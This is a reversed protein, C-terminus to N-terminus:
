EETFEIAIDFSSGALTVGNLNVALVQAVGRLVISQGLEGFTWDVPWQTGATQANSPVPTNILIKNSRMTGVATGLTPNATYARVVATGAPNNSDNSVITPATSTGVTNATSRKVLLIDTYGVTNQTASVRIRNVRVVKTASGTITFIDTASAASALGTISACYTAKTGDSPVSRVVLENDTTLEASGQTKITAQRWPFLGDSLLTQHASDTDGLSAASIPLTRATTVASTGNIVHFQLPLIFSDLQYGVFGAVPLEFGQSQIYFTASEGNIYIVFIQPAASLFSNLTTSEIKVGNSYVVANLNGSTDIEFGIANQLPTAATFSTPVTGIGWFSHAGTPPAAGTTIQAGFVLDSFSPTFTPQSLMLAESSAATTVALTNVGLGQTDTGGNALTLNWRNTTDLGALDFSDYFLTGSPGQVNLAGNAVMAYLGGEGALPSTIEIPWAGSLPAAVGQNASTRLTQAGTVGAGFNAAGTANGIQSATRLTTADVTGYNTDYPFTVNVLLRGSSDVQIASQQGTTLTPLTSNFQGGILASAGAVTGPTVPGDSFDKTLMNGNVDAGVFNVSDGTADQGVIKVELDRDIYNLDGM